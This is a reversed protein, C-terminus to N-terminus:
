PSRRKVIQDFVNQEEESIIWKNFKGVYMITFFIPVLSLVFLMWGTSRPFGGWLMLEGGFDRWHYYVVMSYVVMYLLTGLVAVVRIKKTLTSSRKKVSISICLGFAIIIGLGLQYAIWKVTEFSHINGGGQMMTPYEQHPQGSPLSPGDLIWFAGCSLMLGILLLFFWRFIM